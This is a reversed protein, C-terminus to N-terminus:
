EISESIQTEMLMGRISRDVTAEGGYGDCIIKWEWGSYFKDM